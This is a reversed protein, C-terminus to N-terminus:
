AQKEKKVRLGALKRTPPSPRLILFIIIYDRRGYQIGCPCHFSWQHPPPTFHFYEFPFRGRYWKTWWLDSMFQGPISGPDERQSTSTGSGPTDENTMIEKKAKGQRWPNHIKMDTGTEFDEKWHGRSRGTVSLEAPKYNLQLEAVREM